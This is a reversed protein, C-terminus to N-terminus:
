RRNGPFYRFRIIRREKVHSSQKKALRCLEDLLVPNQNIRSLATGTLTDIGSTSLTRQLLSRLRDDHIVTAEIEALLADFDEKGKGKSGISIALGSGLKEFFLPILKAEIEPILCSTYKKRAIVDYYISKAVKAADDPTIAPGYKDLKSLINKQFYTKVKKRSKEDRHAEGILSIQEDERMEQWRDSFYRKEAVTERDMETTAKLINDLKDIARYLATREAQDNSDDQLLTYQGWAGDINVGHQDCLQVFAIRKGSKSRWALKQYVGKRATKKPQEM